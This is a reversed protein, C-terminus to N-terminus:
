DQLTHRVSRAVTVREGKIVVLDNDHPTNDDLFQEMDRLNRGAGSHLVNLQRQTVVFYRVGDDAMTSEEQQRRHEDNHLLADQQANGRHGYIHNPRCSCSVFYWDRTLSVTAHAHKKNNHVRAVAVAEAKTWYLPPLPACECKVGWMNVDHGYRATAVMPTEKQQQEERHKRVQYQAGDVYPHGVTAWGCTCTGYHWSELYFTTTRHQARREHQIMADFAAQVSSLDRQEWDCPVCFARIGYAHAATYGTNCPATTTNVLQQM